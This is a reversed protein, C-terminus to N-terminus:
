GGVSLRGRLERLGNWLPDVVLDWTGPHRLPSGGFSRKFASFGAWAPDASADERETVGWLDLTRVGDAALSAMTRALAAYAGYAHRVAPERSSAGYLYYARDGVRPAAVGAIARGDLRALVLYWAGEAAFATALRALFAPSRARFASRHATAALLGAFETLPGPSADRVVETTVAEREARHVLRRADAHWSAQLGAGGDRLDVIRTTAAQLDLRSRRLGLAGLLAGAGPDPEAGPGVDPAAGPVARPDLKVVISRETRALTRLGAVLGALVAPGDAAEREWIPGHPVYLMTRGLGLPRVLGQAIGRLRGDGSDVLVLRRPSEGEGEIVSGWAWAQLPDGEPRSELFTQWAPRDAESAPRVSASM